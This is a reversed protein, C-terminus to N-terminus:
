VQWHEEAAWAEMEENAWFQTMEAQPFLAMATMPSAEDTQAQAAVAAGLPALEAGAVVVAAAPVVVAAAEDGALVVAAPVVAAAVVGAVVAAAVTAAEDETTTSAEDVVAKTMAVPAAPDTAPETAPATPAMIATMAAKYINQRVESALGWFRCIMQVANRFHNGEDEEDRITCRCVTHFRFVKYYARFSSLMKGEKPQTVSRALFSFLLFYEQRTPSSNFM